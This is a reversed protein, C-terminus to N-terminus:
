PCPVQLALGGLSSGSTAGLTGVFQFEGTSTDILVGYSASACSGTNECSMSIWGGNESWAWGALAGGDNSVGYTEDGCAGTNQCSFSIWGINEGWMWGTVEFDDVQLGPGGNGSPEANIWGINEGYAYQSGDGDPDVNEALAAPTAALGILLALLVLASKSRM